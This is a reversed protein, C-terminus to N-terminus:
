LNAKVNPYQALHREFRLAKVTLNLTQHESEKGQHHWPQLGVRLSDSDSRRVGPRSNGQVEGVGVDVLLLIWTRNHRLMGKSNM